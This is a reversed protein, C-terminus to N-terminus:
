VPQYTTINYTQSFWVKGDPTSLTVKVMREIGLRDMLDSLNTPVGDPLQDLQVNVRVELRLSGDVVNIDESGQFVLTELNQPDTNFVHTINSYQNYYEVVVPDFPVLTDRTWEIDICGASSVSAVVVLLCLMASLKM